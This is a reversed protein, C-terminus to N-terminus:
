GSPGRRRASAAGRAGHQPLHAAAHRLALRLHHHGPDRHAVVAVRLAPELQAVQHALDRGDLADLAHAQRRDLHDVHAVRQQVRERLLRADARVQVHRELGPVVGHQGRHPAVVVGGSVEPRDGAQALAHRVHVQRGVHDDTVRRLVLRRELAREVDHPLGADGAHVREAERGTRSRLRVAEAVRHRGASFFRRLRSSRPSDSASDRRCRAPFSPAVSSTSTSLTASM